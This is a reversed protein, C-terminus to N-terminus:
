RKKRVSGQYVCVITGGSVSVSKSFDCIMAAIANDAGPLQVLDGRQCQRLAAIGANANAFFQSTASVCYAPEAYATEVFASFIFIALIYIRLM